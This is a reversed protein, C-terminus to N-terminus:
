LWDRLATLPPNGTQGEGEVLLTRPLSWWGAREIAGKVIAPIIPQWATGEEPPRWGMFDTTDTRPLPRMAEAVSRRGIQQELTETM